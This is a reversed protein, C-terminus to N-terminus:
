DDPLEESEGIATITVAGMVCQIVVNGTKKDYTYDNNVVCNVGNNTITISEPLKYGDDAILTCTFKDGKIVKTPVVSTVNTFAATLNDFITPLPINNNEYICNEASSALAFQGNSRNEACIHNIKSSTLYIATKSDEVMYFKNGKITANNMNPPIGDKYIAINNDNFVLGSAYFNFFYGSGDEYNQRFTNGVVFTDRGLDYLGYGKARIYNNTIKIDKCGTNVYVGYGGGTANDIRNNNLSIKSAQELKVYAGEGNFTNDSIIIDTVSYINIGTDDFINSQIICNVSEPITDGTATIQINGSSIFHNSNIITNRADGNNHMRLDIATTCNKVTNGILKANSNDESDISGFGAIGGECWNNLCVIDECLNSWIICGDEHGMGSKLNSNIVTCNEVRARHSGSFHIGNGGCDTIRCGRVIADYGNNLLIAENGNVIEVDEIICKDSAVIERTTEWRPNVMNERNGDIKINRITSGNEISFLTEEYGTARTVTYGNGNLCMGSNLTIKEALTFGAGLYIDKIGRSIAQKLELSTCVVMELKSLKEKEENTFDNSSLGKGEEKDVKNINLKKVYEALKNIPEADVDSEGNKLEQWILDEM